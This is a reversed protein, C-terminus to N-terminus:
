GLWFGQGVGATPGGVSQPTNIRKGGESDLVPRAMPLGASRPHTEKGSSAEVRTLTAAARAWILACGSAGDNNPTLALRRESM